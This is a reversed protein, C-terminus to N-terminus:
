KNEKKIKNLYDELDQEPNEIGLKKLLMILYLEIDVFTQKFIENYTTQDNLFRFVIQNFEKQSLKTIDTEGDRFDLEEVVKKDFKADVAKKEEDTLERNFKKKVGEEYQKLFLAKREELKM